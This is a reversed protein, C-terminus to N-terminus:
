PIPADTSPAMGQGMEICAHTPIGLKDATYLDLMVFAALIMASIQLIALFSRKFEEWPDNDIRKM